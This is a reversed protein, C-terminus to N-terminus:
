HDEDKLFRDWPHQVMRRKILHRTEFLARSLQLKPCALRSLFGPAPPIPTFDLPTQHDFVWYRYTPIDFFDLGYYIM